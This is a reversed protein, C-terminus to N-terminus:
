QLRVAPVDCHAAHLLALSATSHAALDRAAPAKCEGAGAPDLLVLIKRYAAM